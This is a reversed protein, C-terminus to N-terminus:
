PVRRDARSFQDSQRAPLSLSVSGEIHSAPKM